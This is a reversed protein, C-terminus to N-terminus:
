KLKHVIHSAYYHLLEPNCIIYREDETVRLAKRKVLCDAGYKIIGAVSRGQNMMSNITRLNANNEDLKGWTSNVRDILRSKVLEHRRSQPNNVDDYFSAAILTTPTVRYLQKMQDFTEQALQKTNGGAELFEQVNIPKGFDFYINKGKNGWLRSVLTDRVYGWGSQKKEGWLPLGQEERIKNAAQIYDNKANLEAFSKDSLIIDYAIAFPVVYIPRMKKRQAENPVLFFYNNFKKVIGDYSRGGQPFILLNDGDEALITVLRKQIQKLYKLDKNETDIFIAGLKEFYKGLIPLRGIGATAVIRTPKVGAQNLKPCLTAWDTHDWHLGSFFSAAEEPLSLISELGTIEIDEFWHNAYFMFKGKQSRYHDRDFSNESM